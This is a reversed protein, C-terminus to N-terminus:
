LWVSRWEDAPCVSALRFSFMSFVVVVVVTYCIGSCKLLPFRYTVPTSRPLAPPHLLLQLDTLFLFIACASSYAQEIVGPDVILSFNEWKCVDSDTDPEAGTYVRTFRLHIAYPDIFLIVM